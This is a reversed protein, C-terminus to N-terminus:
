LWQPRQGTIVVDFRSELDEEIQREIDELHSTLTSVSVVALTTMQWKDRYDTEAVSVNYATRLRHLITKLVARKDKLSQAAPIHLDFEVLLIHMAPQPKM